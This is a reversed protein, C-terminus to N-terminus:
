HLHLILYYKSPNNVCIHTVRLNSCKYEVHACLIGYFPPGTNVTGMITARKEEDTM